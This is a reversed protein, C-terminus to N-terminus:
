ERLLKLNINNTQNFLAHNEMPLIIHTQTYRISDLDLFYYWKLRRLIFNEMEYKLQHQIYKM